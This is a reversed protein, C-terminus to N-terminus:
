STRKRYTFDTLREHAEPKAGPVHWGFMSGMEMAAVQAPTIGRSENFEDPDFDSPYFGTEGRKILIPEGTSHLRSMCFAPLGNM